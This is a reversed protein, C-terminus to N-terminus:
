TSSRPSAPSRRSAAAIRGGPGAPPARRRRGRARRAGDRRRDRDAPSRGAVAGGYKARRKASPRPVPAAGNGVGGTGTAGAGTGVRSGAGRRGAGVGPAEGFSVGPEVEGMLDAMVVRREASASGAAPLAQRGEHATPSADPNHQKHDVAMESAAGLASAGRGTGRGTPEATARSERSRKSPPPRPHAMGCSRPEPETNASARFESGGALGITLSAGDGSAASSGIM